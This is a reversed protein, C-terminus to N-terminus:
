KVGRLVAWLDRHWPADVQRFGAQRFYDLQEAITQHCDDGSTRPEGFGGINRAQWQHLADHFSEAINGAAIMADMHRGWTQMHRLYVADDEDRIEDGNALIGGPALADFCRQYLQRKEGADLHHIASMSVIATPPAALLPTWDDQLRSLAVHGRSAFPAMRQAAIELAAESQDIVLVRASPSAALIQEALRGTGGGLDIVYGTREAALLMNVLFQQLELYHPHVYQASADYGAALEQKNWRYQTM